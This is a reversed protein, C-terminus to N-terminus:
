WHYVSSLETAKLKRAFSFGDCDISRICRGLGNFVTLGLISPETCERQHQHLIRCIWPQEQVESEFQERAYNYQYKPSSCLSLTNCSTDGIWLSWVGVWLEPLRRGVVSSRRLWHGWHTGILVWLLSSNMMAKELKRIRTIPFTNCKGREDLGGKVVSKCDPTPLDVRILLTKPVSVATSHDVIRLWRRPQYM